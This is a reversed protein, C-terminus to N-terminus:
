QTYASESRPHQRDPNYLDPKSHFLFSLLATAGLARPRDSASSHEVRGAPKMCDPCIAGLKIKCKIKLSDEKHRLIYLVESNQIIMLPPSRKGDTAM